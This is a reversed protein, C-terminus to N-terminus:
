TFQYWCPEIWKGNVHIRLIKRTWALKLCVTDHNGNEDENQVDINGTKHKSKSIGQNGELECIPVFCRPKGGGATSNSLYKGENCELKHPYQQSPCLCCFQLYLLRKCCVTCTLLHLYTTSYEQFQQALSFSVAERRTSNNHGDFQDLYSVHDSTGQCVCFSNPLM